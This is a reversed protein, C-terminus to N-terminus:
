TSGMMRKRMQQRQSKTPTINTGKFTKKTKTAMVKSGLGTKANTKKKVTTAAGNIGMKSAKTGNTKKKVLNKPKLKPKVVNTVTKKDGVRVPKKGDRRTKGQKFNLYDRLTTFGADKIMKPTVVKPKSTKTTKTKNGNGSIKKVKKTKTNVAFDSVDKKKPVFGKAFDSKDRPGIKKKTAAFDSVDKKKGKKEMREM